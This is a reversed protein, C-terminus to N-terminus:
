PFFTIRAYGNAGKGGKGGYANDGSTTSGGGGGGGTGYNTGDAGISVAENQTEVGGSGGEYNLSPYHGNFSENSIVIKQGYGGSSGSSSLQRDPAANGSFSYKINSDIDASATGGAGGYSFTTPRDAQAIDTWNYGNDGGGGGGATYTKANITISTDGGPGGNTGNNTGDNDINNPLLRRDGGLGGTGVRLSIAGYSTLKIPYSMLIAGTGGGAAGTGDNDSKGRGGTGGGGGAGFLVFSIKTCWSPIIVKFANTDYDTVNAGCDNNDAVDVIEQSTNIYNYKLKGGYSQKCWTYNDVYKSKPFNIFKNNTLENSSAVATAYLIDYLDHSGRANTFYYKGKTNLNAM